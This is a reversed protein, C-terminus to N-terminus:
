DGSAPRELLSALEEPTLLSRLAAGGNIPVTDSAAPTAGARPDVQEAPATSPQPRGSSPSAAAAGPAGLPLGLRKLLADPPDRLARALAEGGGLHRLPGAAPLRVTRSGYLLVPVAPWVRRLFRVIHLEDDTLLDCGLCILDPPPLSGRALDACLRYVDDFRHVSIAATSLWRDIRAAAVPESVLHLARRIRAHTHLAAQLM